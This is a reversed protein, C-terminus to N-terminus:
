SIIKWTALKDVNVKKRSNRGKWILTLESNAAVDHVVNAFELSQHSHDPRYLNVMDAISRLGNGNIRHGQGIMDWQREAVIRPSTHKPRATALDLCVIMTVYRTCYPSLILFFFVVLVFFLFWLSGWIWCIKDVRTM